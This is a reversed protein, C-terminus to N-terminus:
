PYKREEARTDVEMRHKLVQFRQWKEGETWRPPALDKEWASLKAKLQAVRQPHQDALNEREGPDDALNFLLDPNGQSRILKWDGDRVAAAVGRRWYLTDHPRGTSQGTIYPVLNVGDLPLASDWEAGVAALTTPMIDLASVPHDYTQGKPLRGPWTIFYPVRVGGEWKSGKMGRYPGNDSGNGTAGGNDNIFVILTNETLGHRALTQRVKGVGEDLSKMMAAYTRRKRDKIRALAELDSEKAHMPGHPATYSLYMFFPKDHHRDIFDVAATTLNDTLYTLNSEDIVDFDKYIAHSDRPNKIPWYSRSGAKLGFMEDFGRNLPFYKPGDGMHWKGVMMTRYGNAGFADGITKEDVHLGMDDKGFGNIPIAFNNFEHGFRQQYRGTLLGARSPCCVSATVYGQTFRVGDNALQDMNPTPVDKSGTVGLDIYGMDDTIIVIVNPKEAASCASALCVILLAAIRKM